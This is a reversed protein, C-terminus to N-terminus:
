QVVEAAQVRKLQITIVEYTQASQNEVITKHAPAPGPYLTPRLLTVLTGDNWGLYDTGEHWKSTSVLDAEALVVSISPPTVPLRASDREWKEHPKLTFRVVRVLQNELDITHFTPDVPVRRLDLIQPRSAEKITVLFADCPRAASGALERNAPTLWFVGGGALEQTNDGQTLRCGTGRLTLLVSPQPIEDLGVQNQQALSFQTVTVHDNNLRVRADASFVIGPVLCLTFVVPLRMKHCDVQNAGNKAFEFYAGLLLAGRTTKAIM